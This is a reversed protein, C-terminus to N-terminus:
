SHHSSVHLLCWVADAAANVYTCYPHNAYPLRALGRRGIATLGDTHLNPQQRPERQRDLCYSNEGSLLIMQQTCTKYKSGLNQGSLLQERRQTSFRRNPAPERYVRVSFFVLARASIVVFLNVCSLLVCPPCTHYIHTHRTRPFLAPRNKQGVGQRDQRRHTLCGRQVATEHVAVCMCVTACTTDLYTRYSRPCWWRLIMCLVCMKRTVYDTFFTVGFVHWLIDNMNWSAERTRKSVSGCFVFEAGTTWVRCGEGRLSPIRPWCFAFDM